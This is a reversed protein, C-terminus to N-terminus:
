AHEARLAKFAVDAEALLASKEAEPLFAGEFGTRAITCLEDLGFRLASSAHAFEDTLTVNSM